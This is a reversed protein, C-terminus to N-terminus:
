LHRRHIPEVDDLLGMAILCRGTTALAQAILYGDGTQEALALAKRAFELAPPYNSSQAETRALMFFSESCSGACGLREFIDKAKLFSQSAQVKDGSYWCFAGFGVLADALNYENDKDSTLEEYAQSVLAPMDGYSSESMYQWTRALQM